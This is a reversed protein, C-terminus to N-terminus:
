KTKESEQELPNIDIFGWEIPYRKDDIILTYANKQSDHELYMKSENPNLYKSFITLTDTNTFQYHFHYVEDGKVLLDISTSLTHEQDQKTFGLAQAQLDKMELKYYKGQMAIEEQKKENYVFFTLSSVILLTLAAAIGFIVKRNYLFIVPKKLLDESPHAQKLFVEKGKDASTTAKNEELMEQHFSRLKIKLQKRGQIVMNKRVAKQAQLEAYVNPNQKMEAEFERVEEASLRGDLYADILETINEDNILM